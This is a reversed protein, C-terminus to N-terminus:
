LTSRGKESVSRRGDTGLCYSWTQGTANHLDVFSSASGSWKMAHPSGGYNAYGCQELNDTSIAMSSYYTASPHLDVSAAANGNELIAHNNGDVGVQKGTAAGNLKGTRSNPPTVNNSNYQQGFVPLSFSLLLLGALGFFRRLAITILRMTIGNGETNTQESNEQEVL